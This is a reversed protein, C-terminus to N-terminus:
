SLPTGNYDTVQVLRADKFQLLWNDDFHYYNYVHYKLPLNLAVNHVPLNFAMGRNKESVMAGAIQDGWMVHNEEYIFYDDKKMDIETTNAEKDIRLRYRLEGNDNWIYLEGDESFARIEKLLDAKLEDQLELTIQNNQILGIQVEHHKFVFLYIVQGLGKCNDQIFSTLNTEASIVGRYSYSKINEM